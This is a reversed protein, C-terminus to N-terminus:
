RINEIYDGMFLATLM